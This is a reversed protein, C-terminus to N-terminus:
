CVSFGADAWGFGRARARRGACHLCRKQEGLNSVSCSFCVQKGCAGCAHNEASCGDIDMYDGDGLAIGCDECNPPALVQQELGLASVTSSPASHINWFRHLSQQSNAANVNPLQQRSEFNPQSIHAPHHQQATYLLNLTREAM